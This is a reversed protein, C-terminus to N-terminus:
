SSPRASTVQGMLFTVELRDGPQPAGRTAHQPVRLALMQGGPDDRRVVHLEYYLDGHITFPRVAKVEVQWNGVMPANMLWGTPDATRVTEEAAFRLRHPRSARCAACSASRPVNM